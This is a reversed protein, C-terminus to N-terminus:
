MKRRRDAAVTLVQEKDYLKQQRKAAYFFPQGNRVATTNM